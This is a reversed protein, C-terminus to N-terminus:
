IRVQNRYYSFSVLEYALYIGHEGEGEDEHGHRQHDAEEHLPRGDGFDPLAKGVPSGFHSDLSLGNEGEKENGDRASGDASEM